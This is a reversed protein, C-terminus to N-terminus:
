GEKREELDFFPLQTQSRSTKTTLGQLHGIENTPYKCRFDQPIEEWGVCGPLNGFFNPNSLSIRLNV